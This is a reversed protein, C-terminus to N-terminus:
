VHKFISVIRIGDVVVSDNVNLRKPINVLKMAPDTAWGFNKSCPFDLPM